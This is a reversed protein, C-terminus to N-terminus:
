VHEAMSRHDFKEKRVRIDYYYIVLVISGYASTLTEAMLELGEEVYNSLVSPFFQALLWGPVLLVVYIGLCVLGAGCGLLTVRIWPRNWFGPGVQFRMLERSRGMAKVGRMGELVVVKDAMLWRFLFILGPIVFFLGGLLILFWVLLMTSILAGLKPWIAGFSGALSVEHGLHVESVAYILAGEAWIFVFFFIAVGAVFVLVESIGVSGLFIEEAAEGGLKALLFSVLSPLLLLLFFLVLNEKFLLISRGLIEKLGMPELPLGPHVRPRSRRDKAWTIPRSPAAVAGPSKLEPLQGQIEESPARARLVAQYAIELVAGKRELFSRLKRAQEETASRTLTLPVKALAMRIEEQSKGKFLRGLAGVLEDQSAGPQFGVLRITLRPLAKDGAQEEAM